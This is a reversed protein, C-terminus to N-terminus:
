TAHPPEKDYDDPTVIRGAAYLCGVIGCAILWSATGIDAVEVLRECGLVAFAWLVIWLLWCALAQM